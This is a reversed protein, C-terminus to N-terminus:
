IDFADGVNYYVAPRGLTVRARAGPSQHSVDYLSCGGEVTLLKPVFSSDMNRFIYFSTYYLCVTPVETVM